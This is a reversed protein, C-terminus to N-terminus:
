HRRKLIREMKNMRDSKGAEHFFPFQVVSKVSIVSPCSSYRVTSVSPLPKANGRCAPKSVPSVASKSIQAVVLTTWSVSRATFSSITGVRDLGSRSFTQRGWYSAGDRRVVAWGRREGRDAPYKV